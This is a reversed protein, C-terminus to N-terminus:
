GVTLIKVGCVSEEDEKGAPSLEGSRRQSNADCAEEMTDPEGGLGHETAMNYIGAYFQWTHVM